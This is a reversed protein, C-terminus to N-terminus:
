RSGGRRGVRRTRATRTRGSRSRPAVRDVVVQDDAHADLVGVDRVGAPVVARADGTPDLDLSCSAMDSRGGRTRDKVVCVAPHRTLSPGRRGSRALWVSRGCPRRRARAPTAPRTAHVLEHVSTSTGAPPSLRHRATSARAARARSHDSVAGRSTVAERRRGRTTSVTVVVLPRRRSVTPMRIKGKSGSVPNEILPSDRRSM